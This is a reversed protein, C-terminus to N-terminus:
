AEYRKTDNNRTREHDIRQLHLWCRARLLLRALWRWPSAAGSAVHTSYYLYASDHFARIAVAQATRSSHGGRHVAVAAPAHRIRWGVCRLRRCLDADEWYLFYRPDFGGVQELAERRALFCAGSVWDVVQAPADAGLPVTEPVNRRSISLSPLLRRLLSRRGFLGTSIGPDGRVSGQLSGDPNLITPGVLACHADSELVGRMGALAGSELRCDPNMILVLPATTVALGQNVARGFGVNVQNAIVRVQPFGNAASASSDASANDVVVGEWRDAACERAISQLARSLEDGANYDVLIASLTLSM